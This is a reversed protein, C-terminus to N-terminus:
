EPYCITQKIGLASYVPATLDVSPLNINVYGFAKFTFKFVLSPWTVCARIDDGACTKGIKTIVDVSLKMSATITANIDLGTEEDLVEGTSRQILEAGSKGKAGAVIEPQASGTGTLTACNCEGFFGTLSSGLAVTGGGNLGVDVNAVLAVAYDTFPIPAELRPLGLKPPGGHVILTITGKGDAKYDVFDTRDSSGPCCETGTAQTGTLSLAANAKQVLPLKQLWKELTKLWGLEKSNVGLSLAIPFDSKREACADVTASGNWIPQQGQGSGCGYTGGFQGTHTGAADPGLVLTFGPKWGLPTPNLVMQTIQCGPDPVVLLTLVDGPGHKGFDVAFGNESPIHRTITDVASATTSAVALLILAILRKM